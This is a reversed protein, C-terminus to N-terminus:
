LELSQRRRPARGQGNFHEHCECCKASAIEIAVGTRAAKADKDAQGPADFRRVYAENHELEPASTRGSSAPHGQRPLQTELGQM